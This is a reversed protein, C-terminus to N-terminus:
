WYKGCASLRLSKEQFFSQRLVGDKIIWEWMGEDDKDVDHGDTSCYSVFSLVTNRRESHPTVPTLISECDSAVRGGTRALIEECFFGASEGLHGSEATSSLPTSEEEGGESQDGLCGRGGGGASDEGGEAEGNVGEKTGEQDRGGLVGIDDVTVGDGGVVGCGVKGEECDESIVKERFLDALISREIETASIAAGKIRRLTKPSVDLRLLPPSLLTRPSPTSNAVTTSTGTSSPVCSAAFVLHIHTSSDSEEEGEAPLPGLQESSGHATSSGAAPADLYDTFPPPPTTRGDEVDITRSGQIPFDSFPPPPTPARTYTSGVPSQPGEIPRSTAPLRPLPRILPTPPLSPLPRIGPSGVRGPPPTIASSSSIPPLPRVSFASSPPPYAAAASAPYRTAWTPTETSKVVPQSTTVGASSLGVRGLDLGMDGLSAVSGQKRRIRANSLPKRAGSPRASALSPSATRKFKFTYLVVHDISDDLNLPAPKRKPPSTSSSPGAMSSTSMPPKSSTSPGAKVKSSGSNQSLTALPPRAGRPGKEVQRIPPKRIATTTQPVTPASSTRMRMTATSSSFSSSVVVHPSAAM